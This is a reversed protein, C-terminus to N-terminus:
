RESSSSSSSSNSSGSSSSGGQATQRLRASQRRKKAAATQLRLAAASLSKEVESRFPKHVPPPAGKQAGHRRVVENIQGPRPGTGEWSKESKWFGRRWRKPDPPMDGEGTNDEIDQEDDALDIQNRMEVNWGYLDSGASDSFQKNKLRIGHARGPQFDMELCYTRTILFGACQFFTRRDPRFEGPDFSEIHFKPGAPDSNVM